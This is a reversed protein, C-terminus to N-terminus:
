PEPERGKALATRIAKHTKLMSRAIIGLMTEAEAETARGGNLHKAIQNLNNGQATLERNLALLARVLEPNLPPRYDAGLTTARILENVSLGAAKAKAEVLERETQSFRGM